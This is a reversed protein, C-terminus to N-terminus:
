WSIRLGSTWAWGAYAGGDRARDLMEAYQVGTQLKLRHGYLSYNLGLYFERYADGRGSVVQDEYRALRLGNLDRSELWTLRAVAQLKPTLDFSPMLVAGWLDSQGGYGIGGALEGRLGWRGQELIFHLSVVEGLPRTYSNDRDREQWVADLTLQAKRVGLQSAFDRSLKGLLFVGANFRGFERTDGGASFLGLTWSWSQHRGSLSIGPIYEQPFWLNNALNNRDVTLLETSSVSGDLTFRARHKGLTLTLAPDPSWALYADTIRGYLEPEEPRLDVEAHLTFQRLFTIRGGARLRRITFDEFDDKAVRAYDLQFRGTLRVHQVFPAADNQYLDAARWLRQLFSEGPVNTSLGTVPSQTNSVANLDNAGARVPGDGLLTVALWSAAWPRINM